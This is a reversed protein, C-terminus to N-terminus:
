GAITQRHEFHRSTSADAPRGDPSPLLAEGFFTDVAKKSVLGALRACRGNRRGDDRPDDGQGAGLWGPSYGMPGASRHGLGETDRQSRDLANPLGMAELRMPQPGELPGVIRRKGGLDLIDNAEVHLRWSMGDDDRDVFLALDLGEVSSLGSQRQLGALAAGHRVVVLTVARSGQEGGEIDEVAGDDAAAHGLMPMLLEDFEEVGDLTDHRGALDDVGDEVVVGGVLVRLDQLPEGIMRAPHKM